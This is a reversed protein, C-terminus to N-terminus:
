KRSADFVLYAGVVAFVINPLWAALWPALKGSEGLTQGVTMLIYYLLILLLSLGFGISTSTRQPRLSLPIAFAGFVLCTVPLSIKQYYQM